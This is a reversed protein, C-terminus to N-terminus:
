AFQNPQANIDFSPLAESRHTHVSGEKPIKNDSLFLLLHPSVQFAEQIHKPDM